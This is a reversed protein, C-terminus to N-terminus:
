DVRVNDIRFTGGQLYINVQQLKTLDAGTCTLRSNRAPSVDYAGASKCRAENALEWTSSAFRFQHGDLRVEPGGRRVFEDHGRNASAIGPVHVLASRLLALLAFLGPTAPM